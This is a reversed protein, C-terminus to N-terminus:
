GVLIIPNQEHSLYCNQVPATNGKPLKLLACPVHSKYIDKRNYILIIELQCNIWGMQFMHVLWFPEYYSGWNAPYVIISICLYNFGGGLFFCTTTKRTHIKSVFYCVSKSFVQPLDRCEKKFKCYSSGGALNCASSWRSSRNKRRGIEADFEQGLPFPRGKIQGYALKRCSLHGTLTPHKM